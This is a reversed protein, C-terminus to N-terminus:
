TTTSDDTTLTFSSTDSTGSPFRVQSPGIQQTANNNNAHNNNHRLPPPNHHRAPPAATIPTSHHVIGEVEQHPQIVGAALAARQITAVQVQLRYEPNQERPFRPDLRLAELRDAAMKRKYESNEPNKSEAVLTGDKQAQDIEATVRKTRTLRHFVCAAVILAVVTLLCTMTAVLVVYRTSSVVASFSKLSFTVSAATPGPSRLPAGAAAPLWSPAAGSTAVAGGVLVLYDKLGTRSFFMSAYLVGADRALGSALRGWTHKRLNYAWLDWSYQGAGAYGGFVYMTDSYAAAAHFALSPAKGSAPLLAAVVGSTQDPSASWYYVDSLSTATVPDYGGFIVMFTSWVVMSHGFRAVGGGPFDTRIRVWVSGPEFYAFEGSAIFETGNSGPKEVLGGCAYARENNLAM